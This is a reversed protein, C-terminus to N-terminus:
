YYDDDYDSDNYYDNIDDNDNDDHNDNIDHEDGRDVDAIFMFCVHVAKVYVNDDHCCMNM